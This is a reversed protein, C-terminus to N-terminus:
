ILPIAKTESYQVLSVNRPYVTSLPLTNNKRYITLQLALIKNLIKGDINMPM